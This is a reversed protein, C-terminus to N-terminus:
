GEGPLVLRDQQMFWFNLWRAGYRDLARPCRCIFLALKQAYGAPILAFVCLIKRHNEERRQPETDKRQDPIDIKKSNYLKGSKM